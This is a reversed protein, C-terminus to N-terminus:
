RARGLPFFLMRVNELFLLPVSLVRSVLGELIPEGGLSDGLVQKRLLLYGLVLGWYPVTGKVRMLIEARCQVPHPFLLSFAMLVLPLTIAMEKSFLAFMFFIISLGTLYARRPIEVKRSQMYFLFSLLYFFTLLPDTRAAIFAVSESHIPHVAFLIAGIFAAIRNQLIFGITKYVLVSVLVHLFINTLHFGLPNEKWIFHDLLYTLSVFPRYFFCNENVGECFDSAFFHFLNQANKFQPNNLIYLYDDWVFHHFLTNLYILCAISGVAPIAIKEGWRPNIQHAPHFGLDSLFRGWREIAMM